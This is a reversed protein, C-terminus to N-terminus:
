NIFEIHSIGSISNNVVVNVQITAEQRNPSSVAIGVAIRHHGQLESVDVDVFYEAGNQIPVLTNWQGSTMPIVGDKYGVKKIVGENLKSNISTVYNTPLSTPLAWVVGVLAGVGGVTGWKGGYPYKLGLRITRFPTLNVSHALTVSEELVRDKRYEHLGGGSASSTNSFRIIGDRVETAPRTYSLLSSGLGISAVGSILVGDFTANRFAVRGAGYDEMTGIVGNMNVNKRINWPQFNPSPLFAYNAGQIFSGNKIGIAIGRGVGPLDYAFGQGSHSPNALIVDGHTAIWRPITGEFKIGHQSTATQWQLVSDAGATGLVAADVEVHPNNDDRFYYANGHGLQMVLKGRGPDMGFLKAQNITYGNDQTNIMKIKGQEGCTTTNNLTYEPHYNVASKVLATPAIVYPKWQGSPDKHYYGEELRVVYGGEAPYLWMEASDPGHYGRIPITGQEGLYNESELIKDKNLKIIRQFEKLTVWIWPRENNNNKHYYGEPVFISLRERRTSITDAVGDINGVGRDQITGEVVEDNSDTTVTKYGQLVHSKSATVDDSTVGGTGGAMLIADAM